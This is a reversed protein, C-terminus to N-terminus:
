YAVYELDLPPVRVGRGEVARGVIRAGAGVAKVVDDGEDESVVLSFGMGMNFTQYMEHDTVGGLEQLVAFIPNTPMPETVEFGVSRSLRLLNRLGGGTINAMGRVDHDAVLKVVEEVYIATPELLESGIDRSLGEVESAMSLGSEEIIKRALTLGNSHIGTSPLGVLVDGPRIAEGTVIRSKDVLGLCTGALDFGTVIEPLIAIEGGVITVNAMKAGKELGVGIQSTIDENPRDMALYDVFAIPEAGLCITDNVNMAICDVGVTDWKKMQNAVILKTGVGDTCLTLALSGFDILGAYHGELKLPSGVGSRAFGLQGVLAAVSESKRDIDVGAKAYTM